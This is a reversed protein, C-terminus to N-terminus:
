RGGAHFIWSEDEFIGKDPDVEYWDEGSNELGGDVSLVGRITTVKLPRVNKQEASIAAGTFPNVPDTILGECAIWPTDANTMFEESVTFGEADFDKVMLLANYRELDLTGEKGVPSIIMEPFEAFDCGHDAVIIIRTNDYVGENKMWDLWEGIRLIAAMNVQYNLNDLFPTGAFASNDPEELSPTYDPMRLKTPEHTTMNYLFTFSGQGETVGTIEDLKDLVAYAAMFTVNQPREFGLYNGWDYVSPALLEPMMRFFSYMFFNREVIRLSKGAMTKDTYKGILDYAEIGPHDRFIYSRSNEFEGTSVTDLMTTRYGAESFLVPLVKQAESRLEPGTMGERRGFADPAYEYGGYTAYIGSNTVPGFSITNPYFIFGSYTEKLEPKEELMYPIYAGIARDLLVIVVNKGDSSLSIKEEGSGADLDARGNMLTCTKVFDRGAMVSVCICAVVLFISLDRKKEYFLYLILPLMLMLVLNWVLSNGYFDPVLAYVLNSGITTLGKGFFVFNFLAGLSVCSLLFAAKEAAKKTMLVYLVAGMVGFFGLGIMATRFCYVLPQDVQGEVIFELPSAALLNLPIWVGALLFLLLLSLGWMRAGAKKDDAAPEEGKQKAYRSLLLFIVAMLLCFGAVILIQTKLDADESGTLFGVAFYLLFALGAGVGWRRPHKAYKMVLNKGLSFLNNCTWYIVLGSPSGYLLLLFILPFLFLKWKEKGRLDKGYIMGSVINILTMLIPLLNIQWGGFSLLADPLGLDAVPGFSKGELQRCNSLLHYAAAFFPIQLLLSITGMFSMTPNYHRIAYFKQLIFFREDGSFAKGIHRKWKDLSEKKRREEEEVKEARLYLPLTLLSVMMSLGALAYAAPHGFRSIICFFIELIYEVPRVFVLYLVEMTM